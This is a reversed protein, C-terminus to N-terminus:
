GPAWSTSILQLMRALWGDQGPHNVNGARIRDGAAASRKRGQDEDAARRRVRRHGAAPRPEDPERVGPHRARVAHPAVRVDDVARLRHQGHRPRGGEGPAVGGAVAGRRSALGPFHLKAVAGAGREATGLYRAADPWFRSYGTRILVITGAPIEGNAREWATFDEITVRYDPQTPVRRRSTSSSPPASSDISRFRIWRGTARARFAGARRHAHRRARLDLLQQGRLLLGARDRRGRGEGAQVSRRDALLGDPRQLRALSRDAPGAPWRAGDAPRSCAAM